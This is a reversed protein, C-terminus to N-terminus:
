PEGAKRFNPANKASGAGTVVVCVNGVVEGVSVAAVSMGLPRGVSRGVRTATHPAPYM